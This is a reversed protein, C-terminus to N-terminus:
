PRPGKQDPFGNCEVCVGKQGPFRNCEVCFTAPMIQLKCGQYRPQWYLIHVRMLTHLAQVYNTSNVNTNQPAVQAYSMDAKDFFM